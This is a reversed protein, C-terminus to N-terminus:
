TATEDNELKVLTTRNCRLVSALLHHGIPNWVGDAPREGVHWQTRAGLRRQNGQAWIRSRCRKVFERRFNTANAGPQIAHSLRAGTSKASAILAADLATWVADPLKAPEIGKM